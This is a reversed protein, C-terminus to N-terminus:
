RGRKKRGKGSKKAEPVPTSDPPAETPAAEAPVPDKGEPIDAVAVEPLPLEEAPAKGGELTPMSQGVGEGGFNEDNEASDQPPDPLPPTAPMDEAPKLTTLNLRLGALTTVKLLGHGEKEILEARLRILLPEAVPTPRGRMVRLIGGGLLLNMRRRTPSAARQARTEQSRVMSHIHYMPVAKPRKKKTTEEAM